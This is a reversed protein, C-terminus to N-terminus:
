KALRLAQIQIGLVGCGPQTYYYMSTIDPPPPLLPFTGSAHRLHTTTIQYAGPDPLFRTELSLTTLSQPACEVQGWLCPVCCVCVLYVIVVLVLMVKGQFCGGTLLSFFQTAIRSDLFSWYIDKFTRKAM